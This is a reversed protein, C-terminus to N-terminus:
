VFRWSVRIADTYKEWPTFISWIQCLQKYQISNTIRIYGKTVVPILTQLFRMGLKTAETAIKLVKDWALATCVWSSSERTRDKVVLPYIPLTIGPWSLLFFTCRSSPNHDNHPLFFIKLDIGTPSYHSSVWKVMSWRSIKGGCVWEAAAMNYTLM